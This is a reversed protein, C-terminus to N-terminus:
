DCGLDKLIQDIELLLINGVFWEKQHKINCKVFDRKVLELHVRKEMDKNKVKWIGAIVCEPNHSVYKHLRNKPNNTFTYGIKSLTHNKNKVLYIYHYKEITKM